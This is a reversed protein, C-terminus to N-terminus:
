ERFLQRAKDTIRKRSEETEDKNVTWRGKILEVTDGDKADKSLASRHLNIQQGGGAPNLVAIEGEFRNIYAKM